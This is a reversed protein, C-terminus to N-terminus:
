SRVTITAQLLDLAAPSGVIIPAPASRGDLLPGLEVPLDSGLYRAAGGARELIAFTAAVDWIKVRGLLAGAAKGHAVYSVYAAASGLVRVKGRYDCRYRRHINSPVCMWAETDDLQTDAAVTIPEGNFLAPGSLDAEYWEDLLPMYFCGLVPVNNYLLGVSIGWIPLGYGFNTTGDIPDLAWVYPSSGGSVGQEEGLIMHDPYAARIRTRLLTEIQEDAVTVPSHDAKRRMAVHNYSQRAIQSAEAVWNHVTALM